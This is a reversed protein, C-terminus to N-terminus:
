AEDQPGPMMMKGWYPQGEGEPFREDRCTPHDYDEMTGMPWVPVVCVENDQCGRCEKWTTWSLYEVLNHIKHVATDLESEEWAGLLTQCITQSISRVARAATGNVPASSPIFQDACRQSELATNRAESYDIFPELLREITCHLDRTTQIGGSVLYKLAHAYREVVLDTIVQWDFSPEKTDHTMVFINLEHRIPELQSSDLHTLRPRYKKSEGGFLDLGYTYATAFHDYNLKVRNGGIGHYRAAIAKFWPGTHPVLGHLTDNNGPKKFPPPGFPPRKRKDNPKVRVARVFDLDREFSCLIIEFGAEMRLVGDLRDDWTERALQCMGRARRIEDEIQDDRVTDNMLIRNQSDLTGNRTKGASMGDIYLLRLDKAAAYTHLWGGEDKRRDDNDDGPGSLSLPKQGQGEKGGRPGKGPPIPRSGMPPVRMRAFLMAHEPEFALWEMGSVPDPTPNGHYFHTGAPVSALFFSMGNHYLSSGWQRMSSHVANFIHNANPTTEPIEDAISSAAFSAVLAMTTIQPRM